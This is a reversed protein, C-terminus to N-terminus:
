GVPISPLLSVQFFLNGQLIKENYSHRTSLIPQIATKLLIDIIINKTIAIDSTSAKYSKFYKPYNSACRDVRKNLQWALRMCTDLIQTEVNRVINQLCDEKYSM